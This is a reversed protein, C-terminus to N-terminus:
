KNLGLDVMLTPLISIVMKCHSFHLMSPTLLKALTMCGVPPWDLIRIWIGQGQVPPRIWQVNRGKRLCGGVLCNLFDLRVGLVQCLLPSKPVLNNKLLLRERQTWSRLIHQVQSLDQISEQRDHFRQCKM